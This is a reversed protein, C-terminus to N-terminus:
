EYLKKLQEAYDDLVDEKFIRYKYSKCKSCIYSAHQVGELMRRRFTTFKPGNWIDVVSEELVNGVSIPYPVSCCPFVNGDPNIEMMYFPQPCIKVDLVSTGNATLNFPKGKSLKNYDIQEVIPVLHEIAIFDCIDGFIEFFNNEENENELACDIVKIYVKTNGRNEYFFRLNDLLLEFDIDVGAINKYKEASIGQISVRLKDLGAEILSISLKKNLLLGNTIIEVNEAINREKAYRVMEAINRHLLPEGLGVFRLVKLRNNFHTIDDIIKKYVDMNMFVNESIYGRKDKPIAHMCYSCKFNCAYVPFIQVVFPTNLPLSKALIKREGGPAVGELLKAKM